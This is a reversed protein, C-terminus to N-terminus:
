REKESLQPVDRRSGHRVSTCNCRFGTVTEKRGFGKEEEESQKLTKWESVEFPAIGDIDPRHM